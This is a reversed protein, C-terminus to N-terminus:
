ILLRALIIIIDNPSLKLLTKAITSLKETIRNKIDENLIIYKNKEAKDVNDYMNKILDSMNKRTIDVKPQDVTNTDNPKPDANTVANIFNKKIEELNPEADSPQSNTEADSSQNRKYFLTLQLIFSRIEIFDYLLYYNTIINTTDYLVSIFMLNNAMLNALKNALLLVVALIGAVPLGVGTSSLAVISAQAVATVTAVTAAVNTASAATQSAKIAFSNSKDTESAKDALINTTNTFANAVRNFIGGVGGKRKTKRKYKKEFSYLRKFFKQTNM